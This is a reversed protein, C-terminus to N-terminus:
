FHSDLPKAEVQSLTKSHLYKNRILEHWVGDENLLKFLWKCLLSKNKLDLVEIGLGGRTKQDVYLIGDRSDINERIDM